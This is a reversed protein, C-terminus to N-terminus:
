LVGESNRPRSAVACSARADLYEAGGGVIRRADLMETFSGEGAGYAVRTLAFAHEIQPLVSSEILRVQRETANLRVVAERVAQRLQAAIVAGRATADVRKSQAEICANLRGRARRTRGEHHGSAGDLGRGRRFLMYGGGVVFDPRREGRLRELEAEERAVEAAVMVVDPHRSLAREEVEDVPVTAVSAVLRKSSNRSPVARLVHLGLRRRRCTGDRLANRRSTPLRSSPLSPTISCAKGRCASPPPRRWKTSCSRRVGTRAFVDRTFLLDIYARRLEGPLQNARVAIQQRSLEADREAVVVRAARKGRGPLEQELTWFTHMDTRVPNATTIPWGWIQAELVPPKLFREQAASKAGSGVAPAAGRAGPNRAATRRAARLTLPTGQPYANAVPM